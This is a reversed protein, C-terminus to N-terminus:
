LFNPDTTPEMRFIIVNNLNVMITSQPVCKKFEVMSEPSIFIQLPSTIDREKAIGLMEDYIEATITVVIDKVTIRQLKKAARLLNPLVEPSMPLNTYSEVRLDSLEDLKECIQLLHPINENTILCLTKLTRLDLIATAIARDFVRTELKLHELPVKASVLGRLLKAISDPPIFQHTEISAFIKLKKMASLQNLLPIYGDLNIYARELDDWYDSPVSLVLKEISVYNAIAPFYQDDTSAGEFQLEIKKLQPNCEWFKPLNSAHPSYVGLNSISGLKPLHVPPWISHGVCSEIIKIKTLEKCSALVESFANSVECKYLRLKTLRGFLPKLKELFNGDLTFYHLTLEKLATFHCLLLESFGIQIPNPLFYLCVELKEIFPGFSQMFRVMGNADLTSIELFHLSKHNVAFRKQANEKFRQCAAAVSSLDMVNLYDFIEQICDDDLDLVNTGDGWDYASIEHKSVQGDVYFENYARFRQPEMLISPDFLRLLIMGRMIARVDKELVKTAHEPERFEVIGSVFDRSTSWVRISVVEGIEAFYEKTEQLSINILSIDYIEDVFLDFVTQM